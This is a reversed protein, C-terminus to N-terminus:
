RKAQGASSAQEVTESSEAHGVVVDWCNPYAAEHASRKALLIRGDRFFIACAILKLGAHNPWEKKAAAM